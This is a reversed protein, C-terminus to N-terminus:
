KNQAITKLTDLVQQYVEGDFASLPRGPNNQANPPLLNVSVFVPATGVGGLRVDQVAQGVEYNGDTLLADTVVDGGVNTNGVFLLSVSKGSNLIVSRKEIVVSQTILSNSALTISFADVNQATPQRILSVQGASGATATQVRWGPPHTIATNTPQFVFKQWGEYNNNTPAVSASPQASAQPTTSVGERSKMLRPSVVVYGVGIIIALCIGVIMLVVLASKDQKM